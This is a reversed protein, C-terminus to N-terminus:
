FTTELSYNGAQADISTVLIIYTGAALDMSIFADLGNVGGGSDDDGTIVMAQAESCGNSCSATRNLLFLLSDLDTSRMTITLTGSSFLTVSIEDAFSPLPTGPAIENTRCDGDELRGDLVDNPLITNVTGCPNLNPAPVFVLPSPSPGPVILEVPEVVPFGDGGGGGGGGGGCANLLLLFISALLTSKKFLNM